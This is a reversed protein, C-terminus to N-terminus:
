LNRIAKKISAHSWAKGKIKNITEKLAISSDEFFLIHGNGDKITTGNILCWFRKLGERFDDDKVIYGWEFNGFKENAECQYAVFGNRKPKGYRVSEVLVWYKVGQHVVEKVM